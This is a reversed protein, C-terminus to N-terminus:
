KPSFSENIVATDPQDCNLEPPELMMAVERVLVKPKNPNIKNREMLPKGPSPM